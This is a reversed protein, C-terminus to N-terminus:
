SASAAEIAAERSPYPQVHEIGEDGLVFVRAWEATTEAGGRRSIFRSSGTVAVRGQTGAVCDDVEIHIEEFLELMSRAFEAIAERGRLTRGEPFEAGRIWVADPDLASMIADVDGRDWADFYARIADEAKRM